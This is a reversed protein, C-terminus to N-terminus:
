HLAICLHYKLLRKGIIQLSHCVSKRGAFQKRTSHVVFMLEYLCLFNTLESKDSGYFVKMPIMAALVLNM